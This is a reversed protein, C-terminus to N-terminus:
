EEFNFNDIPIYITGYGNMKGDKVIDRMLLNGTYEATDKASQKDAGSNIALLAGYIVSTIIHKEQETTERRNDYSNGNKWTRIEITEAQMEAYERLEKETFHKRAM